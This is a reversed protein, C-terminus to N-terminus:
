PAPMRSQEILLPPFQIAEPEDGGEGVARVIATITLNAGAAPPGSRSIVTVRATGQRLNYASEDGVAVPQEVVGTVAVVQGDYAQPDAILDALTVARAAHAPLLLSIAIAAFTISARM